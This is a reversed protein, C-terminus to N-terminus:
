FVFDLPYCLVSVYQCGCSSFEGEGFHCLISLMYVTEPVRPSLIVRPMIFLRRCVLHCSCELSLYLQGCELIRGCFRAFLMSLFGLICNALLNILVGLWHILGVLQGLSLPTSEYILLARVCLIHHPVVCIPWTLLM